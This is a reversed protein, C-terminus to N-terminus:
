KKIYCCFLVFFRFFPKSRLSAFTQLDKSHLSQTYALFPTFIDYAHLDAPACLSHQFFNTFINVNYFDQPMFFYINYFNVVYPFILTIVECIYGSLALM